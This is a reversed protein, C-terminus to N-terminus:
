PESEIFNGDEDTLLVGDEDTLFTKEGPQPGGWVPIEPSPECHMNFPSM